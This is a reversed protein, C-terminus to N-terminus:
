TAFLQRQDRFSKFELGNGSPDRIFFTGQEGPQGAFRVRPPILFAVNAAKLRDALASWDDWSLVVGFHNAPVDDGDVPNTPPATDSPEVLHAVVQHGWFNFDVWRPASRGEPCGLLTGYFARAAQLDHVAFALHFPPIPKM